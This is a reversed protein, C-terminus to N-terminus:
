GPDVRLIAGPYSDQGLWITGDVPNAGVGYSQYSIRTDKTPDVPDNPGVFADVKGNGNTDLIYPCWGQAKAVDGTQKYEKTNLWGVVNEGGSFWLTSNADEAFVLHMTAFCTDVM